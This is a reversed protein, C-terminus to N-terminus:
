RGAEFAPLERFNGVPFSMTEMPPSSVTEETPVVVFGTGGYVFSAGRHPRM